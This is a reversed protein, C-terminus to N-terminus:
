QGMVMENGGWEPDGDGRVVGEGKGCWGKGRGAGGRGGERHLLDNGSM